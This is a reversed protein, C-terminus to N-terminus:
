QGGRITSASHAKGHGDSAALDEAKAGAKILENKAASSSPQQSSSTASDPVSRGISAAILQLKGLDDPTFDAGALEVSAAKRSVQLVGWTKGQTTVIPASMLKQIPQNRSEQDLKILEFVSLHSVDMFKNFLEAKGTQATHAAVASSTLHIDGATSLETPHLFRLWNGRLELLGVESQSVGFLKAVQGCISGATWNSPDFCLIQTGKKV